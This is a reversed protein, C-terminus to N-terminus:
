PRRRPRDQWRYCTWARRLLRGYVIVASAVALWFAVVLRRRDTCWRLKGDQNGLRPREIVWRCGGQILAPVGRRTIQGVM